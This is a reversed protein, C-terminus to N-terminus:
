SAELAVGHVQEAGALAARLADPDDGDITMPRPDDRSYRADPGGRVAWYRGQNSMWVHWGSFQQEIQRAEASAQQM